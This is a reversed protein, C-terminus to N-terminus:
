CIVRAQRPWGTHTRCLVGSITADSRWVVADNRSGVEVTAECCGSYACFTPRESVGSNKTVTASQVWRPQTGVYRESRAGGSRPLAQGPPYKQGQWPERNSRAPRTKALTGAGVFRRTGGCRNM